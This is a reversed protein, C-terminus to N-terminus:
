MSSSYMGDQTWVNLYAEEPLGSLFAIRDHPPRWALLDWKSDNVAGQVEVEWGWQETTYPMPRYSITDNGTPPHPPQTQMGLGFGPRCAPGACTMVQHPGHPQTPFLANSYLAEGAAYGLCAQLYIFEADDGTCLITIITTAHM